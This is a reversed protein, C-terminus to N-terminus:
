CTLTLLSLQFRVAAYLNRFHFITKTTMAFPMTVAGRPEEQIEIELPHVPSRVLPWWKTTHRM